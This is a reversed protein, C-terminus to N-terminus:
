RKDNQGKAKSARGKSKGNGKGSALGAGARPEELDLMALLEAEAARARAEAEALAAPSPAPTAAREIRRAAAKGATRTPQEARMFSRVNELSKAAGITQPHADGLVRRHAELTAQLM